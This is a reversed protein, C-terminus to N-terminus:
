VVVNIMKGKVFIIKKPAKGEIWKQITENQLVIQEVEPQAADLSININTRVKGNISVPYEKSSEILYKEEFSPFPADLVSGDNKLVNKWLEEAIHPAYPTLLIVLSQLIEKKHCKLDFLENVCIMFGSVATNFSFRETDDEIKKITRHLVKLEAATAAANTVIVGKNEDVFLRWSKRLFRHVGEIGKTDWPKSQEVPGLFMEYMRFTDAGFREVIDDPNVVNYKSKSMKEVEQGCIYKGDELEFEASEYEPRWKKFAEIDLEVGDVYGVNVHLKDTDYNHALGSSIFKNTGKVRYVFRSSGQIMGQNVLRKYPEDHGIYGLDYLCRTWMRSYLLHGVAHETGGIYLDVQNWYDAAKRSVFEQDNNPDMYRLFYWSSGAYGPMTNTERTGGHPAIIWDALNALPGEGEPGPGYTDVYPLELPLEEESLAYAVGGKYYIPFPEGWYRQRSFGADRMRYNVHRKGIGMEELRDIAVSMADRMIMGDLFDSNQLVADKTPNAEDGTYADGIINTIPINFHRAFAFDRQDGCPVAMIAGTGYGALVYESIWIPIERGNFPNTAYAGTFAGTISKVEALRERESRSKVYDLYKNIEDQLEKTTIQKVLAHEPAIVMFDVGFITDPRTTYVVLKLDDHDDKQGQKVEGLGEVFSLAKEANQQETDNFDKVVSVAKKITQLVAEINNLVQENTFRILSYGHENIWKTRSEDYQKQEDDNHYEGDIEIVLKKELSVIDPIFGAIPHQRRFKVNEIQRNRVREWLLEEAKTPEKRNQKAFSSTFKWQEITSNFYGPPRDLSQEGREKPSSGPTLDSGTVSVSKIKFTIEAGQSKGIWNRQMEKMADSYDVRELGELLRDAYETIRLYWQRMKKKVVPHGGRESVGNVVEDNALVTGLAECWNVEGFASFAIRYDMLIEQKRQNDFGKWEEATFKLKKDGPCEHNENGKNEFISVLESIREAKQSTRNYWSDFLQLFIWQTWKYYKPDSTRVERSWDYCFGINDLQERYRAINKETTLAPHQGTEIAYQEAPLGFSDFGMPHLVNFGKLRKFRAYIDSAIYGLPHGVHLGAGSPYPFMDLVYFKPKDSENSVKYADTDRWQQQWRKEIERFNYEM